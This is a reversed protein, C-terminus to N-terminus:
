PQKESALLSNYIQEIADVMASITFHKLLRERSRRAMKKRLEPQRILDHLRDALQLPSRDPVVFGNVGEEVMAPVDGVRTVVVPLEEALAQLVAFPFTEGGGEVSPHAYIDFASYMAQLDDRFGAFTIVQDIRLQRALSQLAVYLEGDGVLVLRVHPFNRALEAFAKILFEQGKMPVLRGVNGIVIHDEHFGFESRVRKRHGEDKKMSEPDVGLHVVSIKSEPIRDEHVLLNQVCMGDVIFHNTAYANRWWHTVNHRLSHFSHVNTVHIAGALRAAFAGATRDYNSNTHIIRIQRDEIIRQLRTTYKLLQGKPPFDVPIVPIDASECKSFLLNRSKCCVSVNYSRCRLAKALEYVFFEGGGYIDTSNTLLINMRNLM